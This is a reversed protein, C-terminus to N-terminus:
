CPGGDKEVRLSVTRGSLTATGVYASGSASASMSGTAGSAVCKLV